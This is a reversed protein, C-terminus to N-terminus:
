RLESEWRMTREAPDVELVADLDEGTLKREWREGGQEGDEEGDESEGDGM